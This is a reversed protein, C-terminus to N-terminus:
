PLSGPSQTGSSDDPVACWKEKLTVFNQAASTASLATTAASTAASVAAAFGIKFGNRFATNRLSQM